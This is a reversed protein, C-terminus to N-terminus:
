QPKLSIRTSASSGVLIFGDPSPVVDWIDGRSVTALYLRTGDARYLGIWVMHTSARSHTALLLCPVGHIRVSAVQLGSYYFASPVRETIIVQGHRAITIQQKHYLISVGAFDTPSDDRVYTRTAFRNFLDSRNNQETTKRDQLHVVTVAPSTFGRYNEAGNRVWLPDMAGGAIGGGVIPLPIVCSSLSLALTASFVILWINM